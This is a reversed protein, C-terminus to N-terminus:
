LRSITSSGQHKYVAHNDNGSGCDLRSSLTSIRCRNDGNSDVSAMISYASDSESTTVYPILTIKIFRPIYTIAGAIIMKLVLFYM